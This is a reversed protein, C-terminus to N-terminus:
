GNLTVEGSVFDSAKCADSLIAVFQSLFLGEAITREVITDIQGTEILYVGYDNLFGVLQKRLQKQEDLSGEEWNVETVSVIKTDIKKGTERAYDFFRSVVESKFWAKAHGINRFTTKRLRKAEIGLSLKADKGEWFWVIDVPSNERFEIQEEIGNGARSTICNLLFDSYVRGMRKRAKWKPRCAFDRVKRGVVRVMGSVYDKLTEMEM